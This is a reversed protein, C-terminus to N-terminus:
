FTAGFRNHFQRRADTYVTLDTVAGRMFWVDSKALGSTLPNEEFIDLKRFNTAISLSGHPLQNGTPKPDGQWFYAYTDGFLPDYFLPHSTWENAAVTGNPWNGPTVTTGDDYYLPQLGTISAKIQWTTPSTSGRFAYYITSVPDELTTILRNPDSYVLPNIGAAEIIGATRKINLGTGTALFSNGSTNLTGTARDLDTLGHTIAKINTISAGFHKTAAITVYDRRQQGVPFFPSETFNGNKDMLIISVFTTGILTDTKNTVGPYRVETFSPQLRDTYNDIFYATGSPVSYTTNPTGISPAGGEIFHTPQYYRSNQLPRQLGM